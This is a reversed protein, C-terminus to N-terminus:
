TQPPKPELRVDPTVTNNITVPQGNRLKLLGSTAIREGASLGDIIAVFDGRSDGIRVFRQVVELTETGDGAASAADTGGAKKPQIVFVSTGYSNYSIATRPIALVEREGPLQLVVRGFQGPRLAGDTNPLRARLRFNRTAEDVRPEVALVSGKFRREPYADVRVEVAFGPLVQGVYQEPLAFDFDIPDISQLSVIPTGAAVYQGINVRRVGLTGSFPARLEKQAIRGAQAEVAAQAANAEAVSADYDSKSIAELRFLQERRRRNLEALEAQAQLRKLEGRENATDLTLLLEGERVKAGSEFHIAQVIGSAATTLDAGNVAVLSGVAEYRNDWSMVTAEGSTITAPPIPMNELYQVMMRNGFWKMFFVGGFLVFVLALLIALRKTASPKRAQIGIGGATRTPSGFDNM